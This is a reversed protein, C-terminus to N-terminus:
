VLVDLRDTPVSRTPRSPLRPVTTEAAAGRPHYPRGDPQQGTLARRDDAFGERAVDLSGADLGGQELAVRLQDLAETLLGRTGAQEARVMVHVTSGTVEVDVRVRGLEGPQLEFSAAYRGEGRRRLAAVAAAVQQEPAPPPPPPAPASPGSTTTPEPARATGVQAPEGIGLHPQAPDAQRADRDGAPPAGARAAATAATTTTSAPATTSGAAPDAVAEPDAAPDAPTADALPTDPVTVAVPEDGPTGAPADTPAVPDPHTPLPGGAVEAPAAPATTPGAPLTVDGTTPVTGATTTDAAPIPAGVTTAEAAPVGAPDTVEVTLIPTPSGADVLGAVAVAAAGDAAEEGTAPTATQTAAAVLGGFLAAIEADPATDDVGGATATPTITVPVPSVTM